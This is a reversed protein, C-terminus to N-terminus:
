KSLEPHDKVLAPMDFKTTHRIIIMEEDEYAALILGRVYDKFGKDGNSILFAGQTKHAISWCIPRPALIQPGILTTEFDGAYINTIQYDKYSM